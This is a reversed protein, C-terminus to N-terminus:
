RTGPRATAVARPEVRLLLFRALLYGLAGVVMGAAAGILIDAPWHVGLIPRSLSVAVAWPVLLYFMWRRWGSLVTLAMSLYLTALTMSALAHGSPRSFATEEVWHDRVETRMVIPGFGTEDEISELHESRSAESLGYFTDVDMGLVGEDALRVIDPRAVGITPKVVHDNLLKVGYLALLSVVVLVVVEAVRTRQSPGPRTVMVVILVAVIPVVGRTQGSEAFLWAVLAVTGTLDVRPESGPDLRDVFLPLFLLAYAPLVWMATRKLVTAASPPRQAEPDGVPSSATV